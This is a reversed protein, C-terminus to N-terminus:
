VRSLFERFHGFTWSLAFRETFAQGSKKGPPVVAAGARASVCGGDWCGVGSDQLKRDVGDLRIGNLGAGHEFEVTEILKGLRDSGVADNLRQDNASFPSRYWSTAPSRRQRAAVSPRDRRLEPPREPNRWMLAQQFDCQDLINLAFVQVRDFYRMREVAEGAFVVQAVFIDALPGAFIAGRYGVKDPQQAERLLYLKKHGLVPEAHSM